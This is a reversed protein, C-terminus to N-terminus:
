RAKGRARRTVMNSTRRGASVLKPGMQRGIISDIHGAAKTPGSLGMKGSKM